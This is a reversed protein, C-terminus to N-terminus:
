GHKQEKAWAILADSLHKASETSTLARGGSPSRRDLLAFIEPPVSHPDGGDAPPSQRYWWGWESEVPVRDHVFVKTVPHRAVVKPGHAPTHGVGHCRGCEIRSVGTLFDREDPPIYGGGNCVGCAGGSWWWLECRVAGVFGRSVVHSPNGGSPGYLSSELGTDFWERGFENHLLRIREVCKGSSLDCMLRIFEAREAQGNEELFDAYVLRPLDAEPTAFIANLLADHVQTDM